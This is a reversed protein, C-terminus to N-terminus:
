RAHRRLNENEQREAEADADSIALYHRGTPANGRMVFQFRWCFQEALTRRLESVWGQGAASANYFGADLIPPGIILDMPFERETSGCHIIAILRRLTIGRAELGNGDFTVHAEGGASAQISV